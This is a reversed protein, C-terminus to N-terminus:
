FCHTLSELLNENGNLASMADMISAIRTCPVVRHEDHAGASDEKFELLKLSKRRPASGMEHMIEQSDGEESNPFFTPRKM